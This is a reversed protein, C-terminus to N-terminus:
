NVLKKLLNFGETIIYVVSANITGGTATSTGTIIVHSGVKLASSSTASGNIKYQTNSSVNASTTGSAGFKDFLITTGNIATVIGASAARIVKGTIDGKDKIKTAVIVSGNLTGTVKVKDNVAIESLPLTAGNYGTVSANAANVTYVAGRAGQVTLTTGSVFTVKGDISFQKTSTANSSGSHKRAEKRDEHREARADARKELVEARIDSSMRAFIGLHLGSDSRDSEAFVPTAGLVVLSIIGTAIVKSKNSYM